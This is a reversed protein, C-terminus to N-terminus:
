KKIKKTYFSTLIFGKGNLYKVVVLFYRKKIKNFKYYYNLFKDFKDQKIITPKELAEFIEDLSSIDPHESLIHNIRGTPM